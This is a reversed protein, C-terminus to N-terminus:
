AAVKVDSSTKKRATKMCVEELYVILHRPRTAQGRLTKTQGQASCRYVEQVRSLVQRMLMPSNQSPNRLCHSFKLNIYQNCSPNTESLTRSYRSWLSVEGVRRGRSILIPHRAIYTPAGQGNILPNEVSGLPSSKPTQPRCRINLRPWGVLDASCKMRQMRQNDPLAAM